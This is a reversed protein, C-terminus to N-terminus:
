ASRSFTLLWMMILLSMGTVLIFIKNKFFLFKNLNILPILIVLIIGLYEGFFNPAGSVSSVRMTSSTVYSSSLYFAEFLPHSTERLKIFQYFPIYVIRGLIYFNIVQYLGISIPIISALLFIKIAKIISNRNDLINVVIFILLTNITVNLLRSFALNFNATDLLRILIYGNSIILALTVSVQPVHIKGRMLVQFIFCVIILIFLLRQLTLYIGFSTYYRYAILPTVFIMINTLINLIKKDIM